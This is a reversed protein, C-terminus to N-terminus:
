SRSCLFFWIFIIWIIYWGAFLMKCLDTKGGICLLINYIFIDCIKIYLLYAIRPESLVVPLSGFISVQINLLKQMCPFTFLVGILYWPILEMAAWIDTGYIVCRWEPHYLLKVMQLCCLVVTIVSVFAFLIDRRRKKEQLFWFLRFWFICNRIRYALTWLSVM